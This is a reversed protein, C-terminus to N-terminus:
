TPSTSDPQTDVGCAVTLSAALVLTWLAPRRAPAFNKM